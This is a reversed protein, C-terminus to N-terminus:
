AGKPHLKCIFLDCYIFILRLGRRSSCTDPLFRMFVHLSLFLQVLVWMYFFMYIFLLVIVAYFFLYTSVGVTFVVWLGCLFRIVGGYSLFYLRFLVLGRM